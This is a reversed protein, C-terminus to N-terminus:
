GGHRIPPMQEARITSLDTAKDADEDIEGVLVSGSCDAHSVSRLRRAYMMDGKVLYLGLEVEEVGEDASYIREVSSSLVVNSKQDFGSLVGQHTCVHAYKACLGMFAPRVVISRGDQM